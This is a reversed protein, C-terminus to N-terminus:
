KASHTTSIKPTVYLEIKLHYIIIILLASIIIAFTNVAIILNFNLSLGAFIFFLIITCNVFAKILAAYLCLNVKNLGVFIYYSPVSFLNVIYGFLFCRLGWSIQPNYIEGLWISLIFRALIFLGFFAPLAFFLVFKLSKKHINKIFKKVDQLKKQVESVKPMIAKLGMEYLSRLNGVGRLAIEYYSVESLGIYKSIIIKSFPQILMSVLRASFMTGGLILLDKFCIKTVSSIKFIKIKYHILLIYLSVIFITVYLSIAGLYLGLIGVGAIVLIISGSIQIVRGLLFVYNAIDFRGIGALIARILEVYLIFASLLGMLPLLHIAESAYAPKLDLFTIINTTFLFFILIILLAPVALIIFSITTYETIGKYNRKGMEEAVYKIIADDIGLKGIQSFIIIVSLTAWLGYREAGLYKLYVPYAILLLFINTGALITGSLVNKKM